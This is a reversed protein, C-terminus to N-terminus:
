ASSKSSQALTTSIGAEQQLNGDEHYHQQPALRMSFIELKM